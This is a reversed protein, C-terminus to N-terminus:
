EASDAIGMIAGVGVCNGAGDGITRPTWDSSIFKFEERDEGDAIDDFALYSGVDVGVSEGVIMKDAVGDVVGDICLVAVGEGVGDASVDATGDDSGVDTDVTVISTWSRVSPFASIPCHLVDGVPSDEHLRLDAHASQRWRIELNDEDQESEGGANQITSGEPDVEIRLCSCPPLKVNALRSTGHLIVSDM